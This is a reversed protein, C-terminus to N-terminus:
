AWTRAHKAAQKVKANTGGLDLPMPGPNLRLRGGRRRWRGGCLERVGMPRVHAVAVAECGPWWV